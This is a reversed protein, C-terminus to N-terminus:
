LRQHRVVLVEVPYMLAPLSPMRVSPAMPAVTTL